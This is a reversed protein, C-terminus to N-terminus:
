YSITGSATYSSIGQGNDGGSITGSGTAGAFRGTGGTITYTGTFTHAVNPSSKGVECVTGTQSFTLTAGNAATLTSSGTAPACFGGQGNPTAAAWKITLTSTYPGTGLHSSTATGTTQVTCGTATFQCGAPSLSTETGSGSSKFPLAPAALAAGTALAIAVLLVLLGLLSRKIMEKGKKREM